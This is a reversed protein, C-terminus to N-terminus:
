KPLPKTHIDLSHKALDSVFTATDLDQFIVIARTICLCLQKAQDFSLIIAATKAEGFCEGQRIFASLVNSCAYNRGWNLDRGLTRDSTKEAPKRTWDQSSLSGGNRDDSSLDIM